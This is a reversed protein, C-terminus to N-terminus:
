KLLPSLISLSEGFRDNQLALKFESPDLSEGIAGSLELRARGVLDDSGITDYDWVEVILLLSAGRAGVYRFTHSASHAPGWEVDTGGSMVPKTRGIAGNQGELKFKVYPDRHPAALFSLLKPECTVCLPRARSM